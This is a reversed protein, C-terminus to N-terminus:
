DGNKKRHATANVTAHEMNYGGASAEALDEKGKKTPFVVVDADCEGWDMTRGIERIFMDERFRKHRFPSTTVRDAHLYRKNDFASLPVKNTLITQLNHNCSNIRM